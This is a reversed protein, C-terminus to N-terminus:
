RMCDPEGSALMQSDRGRRNRSHIYKYIDYIYLYVHLFPIGDTLTLQVSEANGVVHANSLLYGDPAFFVGSGASEGRESVVGIAVV